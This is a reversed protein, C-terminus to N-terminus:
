RRKIMHTARLQGESSRLIVSAESACLMRNSKKATFPVIIWFARMSDSMKHSEKMRASPLHVDPNHGSRAESRGDVDDWMAIVGNSGRVLGVKGEVCHM